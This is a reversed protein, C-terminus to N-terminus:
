RFVQNAWTMFEELRMIEVRRDANEATTYRKREAAEKLWPVAGPKFGEGGWIVILHKEPLTEIANLYVYPFKEDVSGSTQQWKCEIRVYLGYRRSRLLFETRGTGRYITRYPVNELLLEDGYREPHRIWKSYRVVTFGHERCVSRM